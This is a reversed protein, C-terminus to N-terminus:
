VASRVPAKLVGIREALLRTLRVDSACHRKISEWDGDAHLQGILAGTFADDTNIGFRQCYFSLSHMREKDGWSLKQLLDIHPSRYRDINLPKHEVGLLMSRAMLVQLDFGFGNFTVISEIGSQNAPHLDWLRPWFDELLTKERAETTAIEVHEADDGEYCWGLAIIRCLWPNLSAKSAREEISAKIKAPDVLNGAPKVFAAANDIAATELDLIIAM